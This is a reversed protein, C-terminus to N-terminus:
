NGAKQQVNDKEKGKDAPNNRNNMTKTTKHNEVFSYRNMSYDWHISM